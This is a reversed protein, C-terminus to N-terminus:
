IGPWFLVSPSPPVLVRLNLGALIQLEIGAVMWFLLFLHISISLWPAIAIRILSAM